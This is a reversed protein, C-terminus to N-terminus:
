DLRIPQIRYGKKQLWRGKEGHKGSNGALGTNLRCPTATVTGIIIVSLTHLFECIGIADFLGVVGTVEGFLCGDRKRLALRVGDIGDLGSRIPGHKRSEEEEENGGACAFMASMHQQMEPHRLVM